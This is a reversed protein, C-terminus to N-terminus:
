IEGREYRRYADTIAEADERTLGLDRVIGKLMLPTLTKIVYCNRERYILMNDLNLWGYSGRGYNFMLVNNEDM